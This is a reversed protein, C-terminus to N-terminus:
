DVLLKDISVCCCINADSVSSGIEVNMEEDSCRVESAEPVSLKGVVKEEEDEDEEEEDDELEIDFEVDDIADGVQIIKHAGRESSTTSLDNEVVDITEV